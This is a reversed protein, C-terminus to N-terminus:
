NRTPNPLLSECESVKVNQRNPKIINNKNILIKTM